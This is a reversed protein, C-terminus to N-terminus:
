DVPTTIIYRIRETFDLPMDALWENQLCYNVFSSISFSYGASKINFLVPRMSVPKKNKINRTSMQSLCGMLNTVDKFM